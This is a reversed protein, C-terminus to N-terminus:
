AADIGMDLKTHRLAVGIVVGGVADGAVDRDM